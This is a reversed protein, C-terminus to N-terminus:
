DYISVPSPFIVTLRPLASVSYNMAIPNGEHSGNKENTDSEPLLIVNVSNTACGEKRLLLQRPKVVNSESSESTEGSISVCVFIETSIM